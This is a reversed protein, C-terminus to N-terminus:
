FKRRNEQIRKWKGAHIYTYQTSAGVRDLLGLRTCQLSAENISQYLQETDQQNKM